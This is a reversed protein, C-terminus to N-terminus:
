RRCNRGEANQRPAAPEEKPVLFQLFVARLPMKCYLLQTCRVRFTLSARHISSLGSSRCPVLKLGRDILGPAGAVCGVRRPTRSKHRAASSRTAAAGVPLRRAGFRLPNVARQRRGAVSPSVGFPNTGRASQRPQKSTRTVARRSAPRPKRSRGGSPASSARPAARSTSPTSLWACYPVVKTSYDASSQVSDISSSGCRHAPCV